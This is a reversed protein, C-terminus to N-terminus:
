PPSSLLWLIEFRKEIKPQGKHAELVQAPSLNRDNTLLPYIGDSKQDYAVAQQDTSWEIDYRRRTIRRYAM